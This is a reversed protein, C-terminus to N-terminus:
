KEPLFSIVNEYATEIDAEPDDSDIAIRLEEIAAQVKEIYDFAWDRSESVFKIFGQTSEIKQSDEANMLNDIKYLLSLKEIDNNEIQKRLKRNAFTTKLFLFVFLFLMSIIILFASFSIANSYTINV